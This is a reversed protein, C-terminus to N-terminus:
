KRFEYIESDRKMMKSFWETLTGKLAQLFEFDISPAKRIFVKRNQDIEFFVSDGPRLGLVRIIQGPITVHGNTSLKSIKQGIVNVFNNEAGM